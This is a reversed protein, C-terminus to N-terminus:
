LVACRVSTTAGQADLAISVNTGGSSVTCNDGSLHIGSIWLTAIPAATEGSNLATDLVSPASASVVVSGGGASGAGSTPPDLRIQLVLGLALALGADVSVDWCGAAAGDVSSPTDGSSPWVVAQM